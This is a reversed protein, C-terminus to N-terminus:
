QQESRSLTSSCISRRSISRKRIALCDSQLAIAVHNACMERSRIHLYTRHTGTGRRVAVDIAMAGHYRPVSNDTSQVSRRIDWVYTIPHMQMYMDVQKSYLVLAGTLMQFM